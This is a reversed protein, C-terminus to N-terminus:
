YFYYLYVVVGIAVVVPFLIYSLFIPNAMVPHRLITRNTEQDSEHHQQKRIYMLSLIFSAVVVAAAILLLVTMVTPL